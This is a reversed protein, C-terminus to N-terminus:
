LSVQRYIEYRSIRLRETEGRRTRLTVSIVFTFLSSIRDVIFFFLLFVHLSVHYFVTPVPPCSVFRFSIKAPFLRPSLSFFLSFSLTLPLKVLLLFSWHPQWADRPYSTVMPFPPEHRIATPRLRPHFSFPPQNSPAHYERPLPPLTPPFILVFTKTDKNGPSPRPRYRSQRM